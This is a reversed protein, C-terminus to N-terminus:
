QGVGGNPPPCPPEQTKAVFDISRVAGLGSVKALSVHVVGGEALFEGTKAADSLVNWVEEAVIIKLSGDAGVGFQVLSFSTKEAM